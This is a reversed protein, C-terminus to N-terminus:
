FNNYNTTYNANNIPPLPESNGIGNNFYGKVPKTPSDTRTVNLNQANVVEVINNQRNFGSGSGGGGANANNGLIAALVFRVVWYFVEVFTILSVGTFLGLTGGIASIQDFITIRMELTIRTIIPTDFFFNLVVIDDEFRKKALELRTMNYMMQTLNATVEDTFFNDQIFDTMSVIITIVIM